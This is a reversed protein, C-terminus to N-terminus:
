ETAINYLTKYRIDVYRLSFFIYQSNRKILKLLTIYKIDNYVINHHVSMRYKKKKEKFNFVFFTLFFSIYSIININCNSIVHSVEDIIVIIILEEEEVELVGEEDVEFDGM